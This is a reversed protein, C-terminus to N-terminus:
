DVLLRILVNYSITKTKSRRMLKLIRKKLPKLPSVEVVRYVPILKVLRM